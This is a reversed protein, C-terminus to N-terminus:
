NEPKDTLNSVQSESLIFMEDDFDSFFYKDGNKKCFFLYRHLWWCWRKDNVKLEARKM